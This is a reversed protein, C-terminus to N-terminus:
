GIEWYYITPGKINNIINKRNRDIYQIKNFIDNAYGIRKPLTTGESREYDLDFIRSASAPNSTQKLRLLAKSETTNLEEWIYNIQTNISKPNQKRLLKSKRDGLWQAIGIAGISNSINPNLGSEFILNGIIGSAQEPSLGKTKFFTLILQIDHQKHYVDTNNINNNIISPKPKTVPIIQPLPEEISLNAQTTLKPLALSEIVTVWKNDQVTQLISTVIFELAEPYNTPLYENSVIFKQYCKIGSLGDITLSLNFPIFGSKNSSIYNSSNNQNNTNFAEGLEIVNRLVNQSENNSILTPSLIGNKSFTSKIYEILLKSQEEFKIKIDSTNDANNINPKIRDELGRNLRSLVTADEGVVYGQSTAGITIMSSFNPTITTKISYNQVFNGKVEQNAYDYGFMEFKALETSLEKDLLPIINDRNPISNQDIIIITNKSEDIIPQLQNTGGLSNTIEQCISILFSSLSVKGEKDKSTNFINLLFDFNLYVNMLKGIQYNSDNKVNDLFKKANPAIVYLEKNLSISSRILCSNLNSSLTYNIGATYIINTNSDYDFKILPQNNSKPVINDQLWKLLSGFKIYYFVEGNQFSQRLIDNFENLNDTILSPLTSVTCGAKTNRNSNKTDELTKKCENYLKGLETSQDITTPSPTSPQPTKSFYSTVNNQPKYDPLLPGSSPSTLSINTKLAEIIDGQSRLIVTIDYSGDNNFTWDFNVVRGILADYNGNSKLRNQQALKLLSYYDNKGNFYDNELSYLNPSLENLFDDKFYHSYGWELLVNYGLRLYLIDIIDFQIKNWAKIHITATKLSGRTETKVVTSIIGPMPSQGFQKVDGLGYSKNPSLVNNPTDKDSIYEEGTIGGRINTNNLESIGNFLIFQKALQDGTLGLKKLSPNNIQNIDKINVSSVMKSWGTRSHLYDLVKPITSNFIDNNSIQSARYGHIKQRRNIENIINKNFGEGILNM